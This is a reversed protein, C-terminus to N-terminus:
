VCSCTETHLHLSDPFEALFVRMHFLVWLVTGIGGGAQFPSTPLESVMGQLHCNELSSTPLSYFNWSFSAMFERENRM